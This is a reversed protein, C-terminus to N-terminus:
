SLNVFDTIDRNSVLVQDAYKEVSRRMLDHYRDVDLEYRDIMLLIKRHKYDFTSGHKTRLNNWAFSNTEALRPIMFRNSQDLLQDPLTEVIGLTQIPNEDHLMIRFSNPNDTFRSQDRHYQIQNNSSWFAFKSISRFPFYEMIKNYFDQFHDLFDNQFNEHWIGLGPYRNDFEVDVSDFNSYGPTSSSSVDTKLKRIPQAREFFYNIFKQENFRPIDLPVYCYKGWQEIEEIRDQRKIQHDRSQSFIEKESM